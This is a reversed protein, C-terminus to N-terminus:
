TSIMLITVYLFKTLGRVMKLPKNAHLILFFTIETRVHKETHKAPVTDTMNSITGIVYSFHSSMTSIM